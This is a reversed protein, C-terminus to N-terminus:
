KSRVSAKRAAGILLPILAWISFSGGGSERGDVVVPTMPQPSSTPAATPSPIPAQTPQTIPLPTATPQEVPQSSPIVSPTATPATTPVLTPQSTPMATPASSPQATPANTPSATPTSTPTSIIPTQTPTPTNTPITTPTTTPEVTPVVTPVPTQTAIPTPTPTPTSTVTPTVTPTPTATVTPTLTPTPTATPTPTQTPTPLTARSVFCPGNASGGNEGICSYSVTGGPVPFDTNDPLGASCQPNQATYATASSPYTFGSAAGCQGDIRPEQAAIIQSVNVSSKSLPAADGLFPQILSFFNSLAAVGISNGCFGSTERIVVGVLQDDVGDYAGSGSSGPAVQGDTETFISMRPARGQADASGVEARCFTGAAFQKASANAHTIAEVAAFSEGTDAAYGAMRAFAGPHPFDELEILWVDSSLSNVLSTRGTSIPLFNNFTLPDGCPAEIKWYAIISEAATQPNMDIRCHDATLILPRAEALSDGNNVLSATCGTTNAVAILGTAASYRDRMATVRCAYNVDQSPQLNKATLSRAQIFPSESWAGQLQVIRFHDNSAGDPAEVTVKVTNGAIHPVWLVGNRIESPHHTVVVGSSGVLSIVASPPLAAEVKMGISAAGHWYIEHSWFRSGEASAWSSSPGADVVLNRAEAFAGPQDGSSPATSFITNAAAAAGYLAVTGLTLLRIM